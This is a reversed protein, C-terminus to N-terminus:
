VNNNLALWTIGVYNQWCSKKKRYCWCQLSLILFWLSLFEHLLRRCKIVCQLLMTTQMGSLLKRRCITQNIVTFHKRCSFYTTRTVTCIWITMENWGSSPHLRNRWYMTGVQVCCQIGLLRCYLCVNSYKRQM